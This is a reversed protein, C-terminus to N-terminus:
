HVTYGFADILPVQIRALNINGVVGDPSTYYSCWLDDKLALGPYGAETLQGTLDLFRVPPMVLGDLWSAPNKPALWLFGQRQGTGMRGAVIVRGDPIQILHPSQVNNTTSGPIQTTWSTYPPPAVGYRTQSGTTCRFCALAAGEPTFLIQSENCANGATVDTAVTSYDLGNASSFLDVREVNVTTGYALTYCFGDAANWTPRWAWYNTTIGTAQTGADWTLGGDTSVFIWTEWITTNNSVVCKALIAGDSPRRSFHIDRIDPLTPARPSALLARSAWTAGGDETALIRAQGNTSVHATAERYGLLMTGFLGVDALWILDTFANYTTPPTFNIQGNALVTVNAAPAALPPWTSARALLPFLVQSM